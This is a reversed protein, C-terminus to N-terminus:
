WDQSLDVDGDNPKFCEDVLKDMQREFETKYPDSLDVTQNLISMNKLEEIKAKYLEVEENVKLLSENLEKNTTGLQELARLHADYFIDFDKQTNYCENASDALQKKLDDIHENLYEIEDNTYRKYFIFMILSMVAAGFGIITVYDM